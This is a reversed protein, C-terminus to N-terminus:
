RPPDVLIVIMTAVPKNDWASDDKDKGKPRYPKAAEKKKAVTVQVVQNPRLDSFEGIFGPLNGPGKLERLEKSSYKKPNGKDDFAAPPRPVRVKIDDAATLDVKQWHRGVPINLSFTKESGEVTALRGTLQAVPVMKIKSESPKTDPKDADKDKKASDKKEAEKKDTDKKAADKKEDAAFGPLVLAVLVLLGVWRIGRRMGCGRVNQLVLSKGVM